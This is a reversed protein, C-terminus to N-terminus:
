GKSDKALFLKARSKSLAAGWIKITTMTWWIGIIRWSTRRISLSISEEKLQLCHNQRRISGKKTSSQIGIWFCLNMCGSRPKNPTRDNKAVTWRKSDPDNNKTLNPRRTSTPHNIVLPNIINVRKRAYWNTSTALYKRKPKYCNCTPRHLPPCRTTTSSKSNQPWKYYRHKIISATHIIDMAM